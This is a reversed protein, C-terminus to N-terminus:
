GLAEIDRRLLPILVAGVEAVSVGRGTEEQISTLRLGPMGCPVILRFPEQQAHFELLFGHFCFARIRVGVFGIKKEGAVKAKGRNATCRAHWLSCLNSGHM